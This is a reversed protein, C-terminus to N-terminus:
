FDYYDKRLRAMMETDTKSVHEAIAHGGGTEEERLDVLGWDFAGAVRVRGDLGAPPPEGSVPGSPGISIWRGLADRPQAPDYTKARL